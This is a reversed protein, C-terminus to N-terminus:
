QDRQYKAQRMKSCASHNGSARVKGCVDCCNSIALRPMPPRQNRRRRPTM